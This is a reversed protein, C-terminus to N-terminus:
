RPEKYPKVYDYIFFVGAIIVIIGIVVGAFTAFVVFDNGGSGRGGRLAPSM